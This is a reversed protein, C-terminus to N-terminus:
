GNRKKAKIMKHACYYYHWTSDVQEHCLPCWDDHSLGWRKRMVSTFQADHLINVTQSKGSNLMKLVQGLNKHDIM